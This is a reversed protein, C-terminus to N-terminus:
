RRIRSVLQEAGRDHDVEAVEVVQLRQAVGPERVVRQPTGRDNGSAASRHGRCQHGAAGSEESRVEALAQERLAMPHQCEVVEQGAVAAVDGVQEVTVVKTQDLM